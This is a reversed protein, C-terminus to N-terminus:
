LEAFSPLSQAEMGVVIAVLVAAFLAPIGLWLAAGKFLRKLFGPKTRTGRAM